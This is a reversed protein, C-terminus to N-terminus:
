RAGSKRPHVFRITELGLSASLLRFFLPMLLLSTLMEGSWLLVLGSTSPTPIGFLADLLGRYPLKLSFDLLFLGAASRSPKLFIRSLIGKNVTFVCLAFLANMGQPAGSLLDALLGLGFSAVLGRGFPFRLSAFLVLLLMPDPILVPPLVDRLLTSQLLAACMGILFLVLYSL